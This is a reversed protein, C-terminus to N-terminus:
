ISIPCIVVFPNKMDSVVYHNRKVSLIRSKYNALPSTIVAGLKESKHLSNFMAAINEFWIDFELKM